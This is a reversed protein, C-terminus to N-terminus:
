GRVRHRSKTRQRTVGRRKRRRTHRSGGRWPIPKGGEDKTLQFQFTPAHPKGDILLFGFGDVMHDFTYTLGADGEPKFIKEDESIPKNLPDPKAGGTGVVYQPVTVGNYTITGYQYNHTDACLIAIPPVVKPLFIRNLIDKYRPLVKRINVGDKVKAISAFPEHQVLIYPRDTVTELWALMAQFEAEREPVVLNTDIVVISLGDQFTRRYYTSPMREPTFTAIEKELINFTTDEKDVNHNGVAVFVQPHSTYLTAGNEFAGEDYLKGKTVKDTAADYVSPAYINDGGLIVTRPSAAAIAAAVRERPGDEIRAGTPTRLERNWCGVFALPLLPTDVRDGM